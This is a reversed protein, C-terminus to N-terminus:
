LCNTLYRIPFAKSYSVSPDRNYRNTTALSIKGYVDSHNIASVYMSNGIMGYFRSYNRTTGALWGSSTYFGAEAGFSTSLKDFGFSVTNIKHLPGYGSTPIYQKCAYHKTGWSESSIYTFGKINNNNDIAKVEANSTLPIFLAAIFLPILLKLNVLSKM